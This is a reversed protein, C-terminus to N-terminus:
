GRPAVPALIVPFADSNNQEGWNGTSWTLTGWTAM